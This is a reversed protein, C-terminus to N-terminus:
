WGCATPVACAYVVGLSRWMRRLCLTRPQFALSPTANSRQAEFSVRHCCRRQPSAASPVTRTTLNRLWLSPMRRQWRRNGRRRVCAVAGASCSTPWRLEALGCSVSLCCAVCSAHSACCMGRASPALSSASCSACTEHSAVTPPAAPCCGSPLLRHRSCLRGPSAAAVIGDHAHTCSCLLPRTPRVEPTLSPPPVKHTLVGTPTVTMHLQRPTRALTSGSTGLRM